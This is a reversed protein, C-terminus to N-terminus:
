AVEKQRTYKLLDQIHKELNNVTEWMIKKAEKLENAEAEMKTILQKHVEDEIVGVKPKEVKVPPKVVPTDEIVFDVEPRSVDENEEIVFDVRKARRGKMGLLDFIKSVQNEPLGYKKSIQPKGNGMALEREMMEKTVVVRPRNVKNSKNARTTM